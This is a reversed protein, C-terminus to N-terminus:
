LLGNHELLFLVPLTLLILISFIILWFKFWIKRKLQSESFVSLIVPTSVVGFNNLTLTNVTVTGKLPAGEETGETKRAITLWSQKEEENLHSPPNSSPSSSFYGISYITKDTPLWEEELSINAAGKLESKFKSLIPHKKEFEALQTATFQVENKLPHYDVISLDAWCITDQDYLPLFGTHSKFSNVHEWRKTEDVEKKISFKWYGKQERKQLDFYPSDEPPEIKAALEVNGQSAGRITSKPSDTM